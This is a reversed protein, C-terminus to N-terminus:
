EKRLLLPGLPDILGGFLPEIFRSLSLWGPMYLVRKPHQLLKWLATNVREVPIAYREAPVPGGNKMHRAQDYFETKVPGLRMASVAVGSGHLERYLSTSFADIFAKSASYIAIGQNPLGGAISSINIIHGRKKAVMEPLLLRTLHAAAELNVAIMRAADQWEMLHYFGYWGFGANNILIDLQGIQSQVYRILKERFSAQSIDGALFDAKGGLNRIEQTIQALREERRATLIIHYNRAALFRAFAEGLGSSAGSILVSKENIENEM